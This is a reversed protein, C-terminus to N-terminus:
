FQVYLGVAADMDSTVSAGVGLQMKWLKLLAPSELRLSYQQEEVARYLGLRVGLDRNLTKSSSDVVTDESIVGKDETVKEEKVTGDPYVYKIERIIINKAERYKIVEKTEVIVESPTTFYAAAYGIALLLLTALAMTRKNINM